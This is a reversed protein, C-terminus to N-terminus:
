VAFHGGCFVQDSDSGLVVGPSRWHGAQPRRSCVWLVMGRIWQMVLGSLGGGEVMGSLPVSLPVLFPGYEPVPYRGHAPDWRTFSLTKM